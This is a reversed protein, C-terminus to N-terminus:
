TLIGVIWNLKLLKKMPFSWIALITCLAHKTEWFEFEIALLGVIIKTCRHEVNRDKDGDEDNNVKAEEDSEREKDEIAKKIGDLFIEDNSGNVPRIDQLTPPSSIELHHLKKSQKLATMCLPYKRFVLNM